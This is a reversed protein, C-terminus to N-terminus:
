LDIAKSLLAELDMGALLEEEAERAAALREAPALFVQPVYENSGGVYKSARYLAFEKHTEAAIAVPEPWDGGRGYPKPAIAKFESDDPLHQVLVIFERSSM